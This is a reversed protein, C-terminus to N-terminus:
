TNCPQLFPDQISILLQVYPKYTRLVIGDIVWYYPTLAFSPSHLDQWLPFDRTSTRPISAYHLTTPVDDFFQIYVIYMCAFFVVVVDIIKGDFM